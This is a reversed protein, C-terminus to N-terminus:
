REETGREDWVDWEVVHREGAKVVWERTHERGRLKFSADNGVDGGVSCLSLRVCM